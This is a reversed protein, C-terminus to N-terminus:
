HKFISCTNKNRAKPLHVAVNGPMYGVYLNIILPVTLFLNILQTGWPCVCGKAPEFLIFYLCFLSVSILINGCLAVQPWFSWLSYQSLKLSQSSFLLSEFWDNKLFLCLAVFIRTLLLSRFSDTSILGSQCVVWQLILFGYNTTGHCLLM